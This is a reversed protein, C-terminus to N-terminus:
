RKHVELKERVKIKKGIAVETDNSINVCKVIATLAVTTLAVIAVIVVVAWWVPDGGKIIATMRVPITSDNRRTVYIIQNDPSRADPIIRALSTQGEASFEISVDSKGVSLFLDAEPNNPAARLLTVLEGRAELTFYDVVSGGTLASTVFNIHSSDDGRSATVLFQSNTKPDYLSFYGLVGPPIEVAPFREPKQEENAKPVKDSPM